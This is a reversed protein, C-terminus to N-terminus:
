RVSSFYPRLKEATQVIHEPVSRVEAFLTMFNTDGAWRPVVHFHIHEEMGAGAARGLNLGVNFGDPNMLDRMASIAHDVMYLLDCREAESLQKLDPLHRRPSILLHGNNYPYKNMMVATREGVGLILEDEGRGQAANCFICGEAEDEGLIYKMRWPAWLNKM